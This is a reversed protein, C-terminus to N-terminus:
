PFLYYYPSFILFVTVTLSVTLWERDKCNIWWVLCHAHFKYRFYIILISNLKYM